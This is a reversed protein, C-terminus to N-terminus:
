VLNVLAALKSGVAYYIVLGLIALLIIGNGGFYSLFTSEYFQMGMWVVAGFIVMNLGIVKFDPKNKNDGYFFMAIGAALVILAITSYDTSCSSITTGGIMAGLLNFGGVTSTSQKQIIPLCKSIPDVCTKTAADYNQGEPCTNDGCHFGDWVQGVPCISVCKIGDWYQSPLCEIVNGGGCQCLNPYGTKPSKLTATGCMQETLVCTEVCNTDLVFGQRATNQCVNNHSVKVTDSISMKLDTSKVTVTCTQEGGVTGIYISPYFNQSSGADIAVQGSATNVTIPANCTTTWFIVGTKGVNDTNCVLSTTKGGAINTLDDCSVKSPTATPKTIGVSEADLEMTIIPISYTDKFKVVRATGLAEVKASAWTGVAKANDPLYTLDSSLKNFCEQTKAADLKVTSPLIITFYGAPLGIQINELWGKANSDGICARFTTYAEMADDKFTPDVLKYDTIGASTAPRVAIAGSADPANNQGSLGGVMYTTGVIRGNAIINARPNSNTLDTTYEFLDGGVSNELNVTVAVSRENITSERDFWAMKWVPTEQYCMYNMGGFTTSADVAINRVNSFKCAAVFKDYGLGFEGYKDCVGGVCSISPNLSYGKITGATTSVDNLLYVVYPDGKVIKVKFINSTDWLANSSKTLTGSIEDAGIGVATAVLIGTKGNFTTPSVSLTQSQSVTSFVGSGFIGIAIFAIAILAFVATKSNTTKM